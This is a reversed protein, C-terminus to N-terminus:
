KDSKQVVNLLSTGFRKLGNGKPSGIKQKVLTGEQGGQPPSGQNEADDSESKNGQPEEEEIVKKSDKLKSRRNNGFTPPTETVNAARANHISSQYSQLHQSTVSVTRKAALNASNNTGNADKQGGLGQANM